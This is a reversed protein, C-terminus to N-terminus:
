WMTRCTATPIKRRAFPMSYLMNTFTRVSLSNYAAPKARSVRSPTCCRLSVLMDEAIVQSMLYIQEAFSTENEREVEFTNSIAELVAEEYAPQMQWLQPEQPRHRGPHTDSVDFVYKLRTKFGSDDLLAIGSAGRNVWRDMKRNWFEITACATVDPRQSHILLQDRFPYKYIRAATKLYRQWNGRVSSLELTKHYSFETVMQLKSAM